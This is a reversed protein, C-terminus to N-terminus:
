STKSTQRLEKDRGTSVNCWMAECQCTASTNGCRLSHLALATSLKPRGKTALDWTAGPPRGPRGPTSGPCALLRSTPADCSRWPLQTEQSKARPARPELSRKFGLETFWSKPSQDLRQPCKHVKHSESIHPHRWAQSSASVRQKWRSRSRCKAQSSSWDAALQIRQLPWSRRFECQKFLSQCIHCLIVLIM